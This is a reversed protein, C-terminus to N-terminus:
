FLNFNVIFNYLTKRQGEDLEQYFDIFNGATKENFNKLLFMDKTIISNIDEEKISPSLILQKILKKQDLLTSKLNKMDKRFEKKLEIAYLSLDLIQRISLDLDYYLDVLDSFLTGTPIYKAPLLIIRGNDLYKAMKKKQNDSLTSHLEVFRKVVTDKFIADYLTIQDFLQEIKEISAQDKELLDMCNMQFKYFVLRMEPIKALLDNKLNYLIETQKVDLKLDRQMYSINLDMFSTFYNVYLVMNKAYKTKPDEKQACSFIVTLLILSFIIRKIMM